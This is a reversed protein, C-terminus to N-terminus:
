RLVGVRPLLREHGRGMGGKEYARACWYVKVTYVRACVKEIRQKEEENMPKHDESLNVATGDRCLVARSDGANACYLEKGM